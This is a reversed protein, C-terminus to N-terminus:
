PGERGPHCGQTIKNGYDQLEHFMNDVIIRDNEIRFPLFYLHTQIHMKRYGLTNLRPHDCLKIRTEHM